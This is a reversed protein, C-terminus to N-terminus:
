QKAEGWQLSKQWLREFLRPADFMTSSTGDGGVEAFLRPTVLFVAGGVALQIRGTLGRADIERRVDQINHATTMTMASVGIVRADVEAAKDLFEAATVDNGLDHVIWGESRLMTAVMRRGMAHFDEEANGLVVPGKPSRDGFKAQSLATIKTLMDEAVKAAVYAQALTSLEATLSEGIIVLAPELVAKFVEEYGYRAAWGDLLVNAGARDAQKILAVLSERVDALSPENKNLNVGAMMTIAELFHDTTMSRIELAASCRRSSPMYDFNDAHRRWLQGLAPNQEAVRGILAAIRATDLAVLADLLERRLGDPLGAPASLDPPTEPPAPSAPAVRERYVYRAGLHRALCEFIERLQFPKHLIDDMGAALMEDRQGAFM